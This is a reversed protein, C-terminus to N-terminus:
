ASRTPSKGRPSAKSSPTRRVPTGYVILPLTHLYVLMGAPKKGHVSRVSLKPEGGPSSMHARVIWEKGDDSTLSYDTEWSLLLPEKKPKSQAV